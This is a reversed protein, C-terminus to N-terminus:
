LVTVQTDEELKTSVQVEIALHEVKMEQSVDSQM